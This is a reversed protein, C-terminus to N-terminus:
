KVVARETQPFINAGVVNSDLDSLSFKTIAASKPQKSIVMEVAALM